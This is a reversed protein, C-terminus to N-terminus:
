TLTVEFTSGDLRQLGLRVTSGPPGADPIGIVRRLKALVPSSEPLESLDQALLEALPEGDITQMAMGTQIGAQEADSEPDVRTIVMKSGFNQARISLRVRQHKKFNEVEEPAFVVTHSDHLETTMRQLLQFFEKDTKAAEVLPRYRQHIEDWNVGNMDPDYYNDHIAKWAKEFTQLRDKPSLGESTNEGTAPALWLGRVGSSGFPLLLLFLCVRFRFFRHM